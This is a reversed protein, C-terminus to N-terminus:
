RRNKFHEPEPNGSIYLDSKCRHCVLVDARGPYRTERVLFSKQNKAYCNACIYHPPEGNEMGEKLAYTMLGDGVDHLKYRAKDADWAKLDTVEKELNGVTEVLASQSQQASLIKEQLEIVVDNLRTRDDIDKIGKALDFASKLANIGMFVEAVM